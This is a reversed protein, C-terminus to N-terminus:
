SKTEEQIKEKKVTGAFLATVVFFDLAAAILYNFSYGSSFLFAYIHVAFDSVLVLTLPLKIWVSVKKKTFFFLTMLCLCAIYIVLYIILAAVSSVTPDSFDGYYCGISVIEALPVPLMIGSFIFILAGALSFVAMALVFIRDLNYKKMKKFDPPYKLIKIVYYGGKQM